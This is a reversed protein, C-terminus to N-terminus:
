VTLVRVLIALTLGELLAEYLKGLMLAMHVRGPKHSLDCRYCARGASPGRSNFNRSETDSLTM